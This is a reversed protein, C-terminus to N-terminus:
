KIKYKPKIKNTGRKPINDKVKDVTDIVGKKEIPKIKQRNREKTSRYTEEFKQEKKSTNRNRIDELIENINKISVYLEKKNIKKGYSNLFSKDFMSPNDRMFKAAWYVHKEYMVIEQPNRIKPANGTVKTTYKPNLFPIDMKNKKFTYAYTFVFSPANCFVRFNHNYITGELGRGLGNTNSTFLFVVDYFMEKTKESPVKFHVYYDITDYYIFYELTIADKGTFIKDYRSDLDKTIAEKNFLTVGRGMPYDLYDVLRM